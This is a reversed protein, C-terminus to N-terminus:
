VKRRREGEWMNCENCFDFALQDGNDETGGVERGGEGREKKGGELREWMAKGMFFDEALYEAFAPLGGERELAEKRILWSMGNACNQGAWTGLLYM